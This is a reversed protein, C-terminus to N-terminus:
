HGGGRDGYGVLATPTILVLPIDCARMLLARNCKGRQGVAGNMSTMVVAEIYLIPVLILTFHPLPIKMTGDFMLLNPPM